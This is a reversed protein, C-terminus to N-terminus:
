KVPVYIYLISEPSFNTFVRNDYIEMDLGSEIPQYGAQPLWTQYINQYTEGLTAMGGQHEFVAYTYAPVDRKVMGHPVPADPRTELGAVYEFHGEPLGALMNCVGFSETSNISEIEDLRQVFQGWMVAIEQNQNRGQYCYGVLTLASRTIIKPQMATEKQERNMPRSSVADTREVPIQVEIVQGARIAPPTGRFLDGPAYEADCLYLERTAGAPRYRHLDMWIYLNSYAQSLDEPKGAHVVCAMQEVAPLLRLALGLRAAAPAHYNEPALVAGLDVPINRERYESEPYLVLWAGDPHLNVRALRQDLQEITERITQPLRERSPATIRLFAGPLAERRCLRVDAEPLCGAREIQQLRAAVMDLRTKEASLRAELEAQKQRLMGRMQEVSLNEGLLEDVQDLSFGLDKLALLRNLRPLQDLSYYRYGTFRDTWAPKFLGLEAYHRLTKVSVHALHSFDGIKLV